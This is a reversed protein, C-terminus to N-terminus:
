GGGQGRLDGVGAPLPRARVRRVPRAADQRLPGRDTRRAWSCPRSSSARGGSGDTQRADVNVLLDAGVRRSLEALRRVTRPGAVGGGRHQERGVGGPGRGPGDAHPDAGRGPRPPAGRQGAGGRCGATRRRDQGRGREAAPAGVGGGGRRVPRVGGAAGRRGDPRRPRRDAPGCRHEGRGGAPEGAVGRGGLRAAPRSGGGVPERRPAGVPRGAGGLVPGARDDALRLAGRARRGGGRPPRRGASCGPQWCGGPLGCCGSCRPWCCSSSM